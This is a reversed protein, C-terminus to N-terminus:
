SGESLGRYNKCWIFEFDNVFHNKIKIEMRDVLTTKDCLFYHSIDKKFFHTNVFLIDKGLPSETQWFDFQNIHDDLVYIKKRDKAYFLARSGLSWNTVAIASNGKDALLESAKTMVQPWGAIDRHVSNFNPQPILHFSMEILLSFLFILSFTFSGKFLWIRWSLKKLCFENIGIPILLYYFLITWHPLIPEKFSSYTFFLIYPLSFAFVAQYHKNTTLLSKFFGYAAFFYLPLIYSIIQMALSKAFNVFTPGGGLVHHTQYYFSIWNNQWNWYLVPSIVILASLIAYIWRWNFIMSYDKRLLFYILVSPVLLVATYKSLGCLGLILGFLIWKKAPAFSSLSVLSQMLPYILVLLLTDPFLSMLLTNILFSSQTILILIFPSLNLKFNQIWKYFFFTSILGLIIAPIRASLESQPLFSFVWQVWGVLPPHDFYSWALKQGYLYYHAEDPTINPFYAFIMRFSFLTTLLIFFNKNM